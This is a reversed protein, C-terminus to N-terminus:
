IVKGHHNLKQKFQDVNAMMKKADGNLEQEERDFDPLPPLSSCLCPRSLPKSRSAHKQDVADELQRWPPFSAAEAGPESEAQTEILRVGCASAASAGMLRLALENQVDAILESTSV